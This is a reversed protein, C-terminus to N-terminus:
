NSTAYGYLRDRALDEASRHSPDGYGGGGGSLCVLVDGPRVEMGTSRPGIIEESGDARLIRYDHGAGAKGGAVGYPRVHVGDGSTNLVAPQSGEYRIRISGGPGGRRAGRGGSDPRLAYEEVLLPYKAETREISPTPTSGPNHIGGLNPWGDFDKNAGAGGRNFFSHWIFEEGDRGRGAIVFRFRRAFGAIAREPMAKSMADLVAEIIASACLSTCSSVPAPLTPHVISGERTRVDIVRTSGDNLVQDDAFLYLFAVNVAAKTNAIPSNLFADVQDPCATLDILARGDAIEVHVPIPILDSGNQAELQSFGDYVGPRCGSISHRMTAEGADLIAASCQALTQEGYREILQRIREAGIDVAAIQALIDGQLDEGKRSNAAVLGLLDSRLRGAAVLKVPPIRLGEHWIETASACYSGASIGGIDGQHARLCVWMQLGHKGFIPKALTIDPLHSGGFYPDNAMLIDDPVIDDGFTEMMARIAWPMAGMHIPVREAQALTHADADLVVSSFDQNQNLIPSFCTQIMAQVMEEAIAQLKHRVVALTLPDVSGAPKDSGIASTMQKRQELYM